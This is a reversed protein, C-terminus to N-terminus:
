EKQPWPKSFFNKSMIVLGHRSQALGQDIKRRLSDGLKLEYEDFWVTIGKAILKQVLPRAVADKDESAHSVFVDRMPSGSFTAQTPTTEPLSTTQPFKLADLRSLMLAIAAGNDEFTPLAWIAGKGLSVRQGFCDGVANTVEATFESDSL